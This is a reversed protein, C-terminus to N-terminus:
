VAEDTPRITVGQNTSSTGQGMVDKRAGTPDAKPNSTAIINNRRELQNLDRRM